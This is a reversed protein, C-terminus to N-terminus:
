IVYRTHIFFLNTCSPTAITSMACCKLNNFVFTLLITNNFVLVERWFSYWAVAAVSIVRYEKQRSTCTNLLVIKSVNTNLLRLHQAIDEIAVGGHSETHSQSNGARPWYNHAHSTRPWYNHAHSAWGSGRAHYLCDWVSILTLMYKSISIVCRSISLVTVSIIPIFLLALIGMIHTWWKFSTTDTACSIVHGGAMRLTGPELGPEAM